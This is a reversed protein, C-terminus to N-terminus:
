LYIQRLDSPLSSFRAAAAKLSMTYNIIERSLKVPHLSSSVPVGSLDLDLFKKVLQEHM